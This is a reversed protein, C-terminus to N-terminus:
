QDNMFRNNIRIIHRCPCICNNEKEGKDLQRFQHDEPAEQVVERFEPRNRQHRDCCHCEACQLHIWLFRNQFQLPIGDNPALLRQNQLYENFEYHLVFAHKDVEKMKDSPFNWDYRALEPDRLWLHNHNIAEWRSNPDKALEYNRRRIADREREADRWEDEEGAGEFPEVGNPHELPAPMDWEEDQPPAGLEVM